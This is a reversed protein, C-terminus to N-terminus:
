DCDDGMILVVWTGGVPPPAGAPIGVSFGSFDLLGKFGAAPAAVGPQGVGYGAFDLLGKFGAAM